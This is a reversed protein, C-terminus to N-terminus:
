EPPTGWPDAPPRPAEPPAFTGQGPVQPYQAGPYGQPPYPYPYPYGGPNAFQAPRFFAANEKRWFLVVANLGVAVIVWAIITSAIPHPTDVAHTRGSDGFNATFSTSGALQGLVDIGFFVTSLVRAWHRGTRVKWAMWLWLLLEIVAAVVVAGVAIDFLTDIRHATYDPYDARFTSRLSGFEFLSVITGVVSLGAGALISYYSLLASRPIPPRQATGYVPQMPMVPYPGPPQFAMPVTGEERAAALAGQDM